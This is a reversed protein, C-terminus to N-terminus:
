LIVALQRRIAVVLSDAVLYLCRIQTTDIDSVSAFFIVPVISEIDWGLIALLYEANVNVIVSPYGITITPYPVRLGVM